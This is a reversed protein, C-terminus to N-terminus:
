QTLLPYKEFFPIIVNQLDKISNVYFVIANNKFDNKIKGVGFYSQLSYIINRDKINLSIAFSPHLGFIKRNSDIRKTTKRERNDKTVSITFTGEADSFGTIWYPNLKPLINMHESTIIPVLLYSLSPDATCLSHFIVLLSGLLFIRFNISFLSPIKKVRPGMLKKSRRPYYIILLLIAVTYCQGFSNIIYLLHYLDAYTGVWIDLLIINLSNYYIFVYYLLTFVVVRNFWRKIERKLTVTNVLLFFTNRVFFM